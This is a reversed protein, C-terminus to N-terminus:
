LLRDVEAWLADLDLFLDACGPVAITGDAESLAVQYRGDPGLELIEVVRTLPDILWYFRVGFAAYEALKEVRDRKQDSLAPSVIEVLIDPLTEVLTGRRPRQGGPFFVSIDPVRGREAQVRYKAGAPFVFGGRPVCWTYLRVFLWGAVTEHDLNPMEEAVLSGNVWEGTEEESLAAWDIM